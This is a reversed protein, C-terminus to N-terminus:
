CSPDLALKSVGASFVAKNSACIRNGTRDNVAYALNNNMDFACNQITNSEGGVDIGYEMKKNDPNVFLSSDVTNGYGNIDIWCKESGGAGWFLSYSVTSKITTESLVIPPETFDHSFNSMTITNYSSKDGSAFSIANGCPGESPYEPDKCFFESNNVVNSSSGSFYVSSSLLLSDFRCRNIIVNSSSDILVASKVPETEKRGRYFYLDQLIINSVNLLRLGYDNDGEISVGGRRGFHSSIMIPCDDRGSAKLTFSGPIRCEMTINWGPQAADLTSQFNDPDDVLVTKMQCMASACAFVVALVLLFCKM